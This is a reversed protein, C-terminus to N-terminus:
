NRTQTPLQSAWEKATKRHKTWVRQIARYSMMGFAARFAVGVADCASDGKACCQDSIAHSRTPNLGKEVLVEVAQIIYIDRVVNEDPNRGIRGPRKHKKELEDAVWAALESPLPEGDRLLDRAILNVADWAVPEDASRQILRALVGPRSAVAAMRYGRAAIKPLDGM